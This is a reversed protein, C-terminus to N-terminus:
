IHVYTRITQFYDYDLVYRHGRSHQRLEGVLSVFYPAASHGAAPGGYQREALALGSLRQGAGCPGPHLARPGPQGGVELAGANGDAPRFCRAALAILKITTLRHRPVSLM